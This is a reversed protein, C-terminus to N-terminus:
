KNFENFTQENAWLMWEHTVTMCVVNKNDDLFAVDDLGFDVRNKIDNLRNNDSPRHFFTEFEKLFKFLKGKDADNVEFTYQPHKCREDVKQNSLLNACKTTNVVRLNKNCFDFVYDAHGDNHEIGKFVVFYATNKQVINLLKLYNEHTRVNILKM